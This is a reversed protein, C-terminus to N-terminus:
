IIIGHKSREEAAGNRLTEKTKVRKVVVEGSAISAKNICIDYEYEHLSNTYLFRVHIHHPYERVVEARDPPREQFHVKGTMAPERIILREGPELGYWDFPCRRKRNM